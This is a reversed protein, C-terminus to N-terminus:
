NTRKRPPRRWGKVMDIYSFTTMGETILDEGIGAFKHPAKQSDFASKVSIVADTMSHFPGYIGNDMQSNWDFWRWLNDGNRYLVVTHCIGSWRTELYMMKCTYGMASLEIFALNAIEWDTAVTEQILEEAPLVWGKIRETRTFKSNIWELLAVATKMGSYKGVKDTSHRPAIYPIM